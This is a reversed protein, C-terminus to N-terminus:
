RSGKAEIWGGDEHQNPHRPEAEDLIVEEEPTSGSIPQPASCGLFRLYQPPLPLSNTDSGTAAKIFRNFTINSVFACRRLIGLLRSPLALCKISDRKQARSLAVYLQGHTFVDNRLDLGIKSLTQGQSKNITVAYCVRLPLQLRSFSIGNKGVKAAFRIRPILVLSSSDDLLEVHAVRPSFARM